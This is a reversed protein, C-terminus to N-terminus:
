RKENLSQRLNGLGLDVSIRCDTIPYLFTFVDFRFLSNTLLTVEKAHGDLFQSNETGDQDAGSLNMFVNLVMMGRDWNRTRIGIEIFHLLPHWRNM